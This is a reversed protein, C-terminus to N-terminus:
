INLLSSSEHMVVQTQMTGLHTSQEPNPSPQYALESLIPETTVHDSTTPHAHDETVHTTTTYDSISHQAQDADSNETNEKNSSSSYANGSSEHDCEERANDSSKQRRPLWGLLSKKSFKKSKKKVDKQTM